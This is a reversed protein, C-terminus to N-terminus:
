TWPPVCSPFLIHFHCTVVISVSPPAIAFWGPSSCFHCTGAYFCACWVYMAKFRRGTVLVANSTGYVVGEWLTRGGLDSSSWPEEVRLQHVSRELVKTYMILVLKDCHLLIIFSLTCDKSKCLFIYIYISYYLEKFFIFNANPMTLNQLGVLITHIKGLGCSRHKDTYYAKYLKPLRSFEYNYFSCPFISFPFM